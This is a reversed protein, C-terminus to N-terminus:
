KEYEKNLKNILRSVDCFTMKGKVKVLKMPDLGDEGYAYQYIHNSSEVTNLYTIKINELFKVLRRQQYGTTATKVATDSCNERGSMAHFYFERPNLGKVFSSSVFGRSEFLTHRDEVELPYHYSTRKNNNLQPQIREGFVNQQGVLGSIQANNFWDGKSGSKITHVFGNVPITNDKYNGKISKKKKMNEVAIKMGVDRAKSLSANIRIEKIRPHFSYVNEAEIFCKQITDHVLNDINTSVCDDLSISFGRILLYADSIMCINDIFDSVISVPYEKYLIQILSNYSSSLNQKNLAGSIIHGKEIILTPEAPDAENHSTYYLNSPLIASVLERGHYSNPKFDCKDVKFLIEWFQERTLPASTSLTM